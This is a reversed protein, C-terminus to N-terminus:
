EDNGGKLQKKMKVSFVALSSVLNENHCVVDSPVSLEQASFNWIAKIGSKVLIDTISQAYQWPVCLIAVKVGMRVALDSLKEVPFVHKGNIDMGVKEADHDFAAVIELGKEGFLSYGLLAQGLAGAGVLFAEDTKNWGLYEEIAVILEKLLYGKRPVGKLGLGALDKRILVTEFELREILEMTSVFENGSKEIRKLIHLYAPFRRIAALNLIKKKEM